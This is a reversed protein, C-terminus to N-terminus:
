RNKKRIESLYEPTFGLYSALMYQPVRQMFDPYLASFNLYLEERSYETQFMQKKQAAGYFRELMLRHYDGFVPVQRALQNITDIDFSLVTSEEVAQLFFGSSVQRSLSTYDAIWWGEIGFQTIIETGKENIYYMRLCGSEVYYESKCFQGERFLFGKKPIATRVLNKSILAADDDTLSVFRRIHDIIDCHM